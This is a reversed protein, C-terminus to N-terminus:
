AAEVLAKEIVKDRDAASLGDHGFSGDFTPASRKYFVGIPIRSDKNYDWERIRALARDHDSPDHDKMEYVRKDYYDYMNYYTVCTQLVDVISFGRHSVAERIVKKLADLSGSTGRAIFTAGSALMIELPNMPAEKTGFPTSRGKYGEPSTPTYQGTTLGYVRNNHVIVTIDVNRKAAFILHEIGEGYSDGDGSHGIVKLKPNAIKIGTAPPIVRGHLSYFSNVNVYDVIKAHCGIGSVLVINEIPEGSSSLENLVSKVANLIGFNGCGACWTNKAKTGLDIM